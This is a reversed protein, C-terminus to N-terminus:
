FTSWFPIYPSPCNIINSSNLIFNYLTEEGMLRPHNHVYHRIKNNLQKSIPYVDTHQNEIMDVASILEVLDSAHFSDTSVIESSCRILTSEVKIRIRHVRRSHKRRKRAADRSEEYPENIVGLRAASANRLSLTHNALYRIIEELDNMTPHYDVNVEM